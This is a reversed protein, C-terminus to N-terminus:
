RRKSQARTAIAMLGLAFLVLAWPSLMPIQVVAAVPVVGLAARIDLRPTVLNNRPDIIQTESTHLREERQSINEDPYASKLLAVVGSVHPAAQSTGSLTVGAATITAGPALLFLYSASNSFCTVQDTKTTYDTCVGWNLGGVNSDYVAGIALAGPTCAPSAIGASSASNGSSAIVSVGAARANIVPVSFPNFSTCQQSFLTSSGLSMNIAAINYTARNAIVWNIAAIVDSSSINTGTTVDLALIKASPAIGSLIAAVNTGHGSSDLVGDDAAIDMAVSVRCSAPQGPATCQGFASNTYDVGSDLVAISVGEGTVGQTVAAEEHILPLSEALHLQLPEDNYVTVVDPDALLQALSNTTDLKLAQMPFQDYEHLVRFEGRVLRGNAREKASKLRKIRALRESPQDAQASGSDVYLVIVRANSANAIRNLFAPEAKHKLAKKLEPNRELEARDFKALAPACVLSAASMLLISLYSSSRM